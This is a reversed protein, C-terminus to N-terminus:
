EVEERELILMFTLQGLDARDIVAITVQSFRGSDELRKAYSIIEKENSSEGQLGLTGGNHTVGTLVITSPLYSTVLRLDDNIIEGHTELTDHAVIFVNVAEETEAIQTELDAISNTLEQKQALREVVTQNTNNLQERTLSIDGVAGQVLTFLPVLAVALVSAVAPLAFQSASRRQTEQQKKKSLPLTNVNILSAGADKVSSLENLALGINVMYHTEDFGEPRELPSPLPLVPHELEQSLSQCLETQGVLEGSVFIPASSALPNDRNNSNYFKITRDLDNKIATVRDQISSTKDTFPVTRIPHPVGDTMIIVDLETPQVDVIISSAGTVLNALALPKIDILDPKLGAQQLVKLLSDITKRRVAVLFARTKGDQPPITQWSLYLQEVPLPLAKKAERMVGEALMEPPLQPLAVLRTLCLLGSLGVTITKPNLKQSKLLQKIKTAVEAEKVIVAGEILGPELQEEAWKKIQKGSTALLRISNDDIYLNINM